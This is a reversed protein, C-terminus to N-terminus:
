GLEFKRNLSWAEPKADFLVKTKAWTANFLDSHRYAELDGADNWYSYTFLVAPNDANELLELRLCGPFARIKEASEEFINLFVPVLEPKFTMKVIRIIM